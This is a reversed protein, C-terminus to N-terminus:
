LSRKHSLLLLQAFYIVPLTALSSYLSRQLVLSLSWFSLSDILTLVVSSTFLIIFSYIAFRVGGIDQSIPLANKFREDRVLFLRLVGPRIFGIFTSAMTYVGGYGSLFDILVGYAFCILLLLLKKIKIPLTIIFLLYFEIFIFETIELYNFFLIQFVVSVILLILHRSFVNKSYIYNM